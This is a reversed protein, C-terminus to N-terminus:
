QYQPIDQRYAPRNSSCCTMPRDCSTNLLQGSASQIQVGVVTGSLAKTVDTVLRDELQAANVVSASGTYAGKTSTGYAVVIVEDLAHDISKMRILMKEGFKADLTETKMGVYSVKIQSVSTNLDLSFNGDLDTVTGTGGGIPMISVGILPEDNATDVGQGYVHRSQAQGVLVAVCLLLVLIIRKM